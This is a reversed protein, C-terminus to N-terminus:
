YLIVISMQGGFATQSVDDGEVGGFIGVVDQSYVGECMYQQSGGGAVRYYSCQCVHLSKGGSFFFAFNTDM